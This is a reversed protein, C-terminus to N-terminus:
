FGPAFGFQWIWDKRPRNNPHVFDVEMLVLGFFNVRAALGFSTVLNFPDKNGGVEFATGETWWTVGADFFAALTVPPLGPATVGLVLPFPARLEFNAVLMRSGFLQNYVPCSSEGVFSNDAVADLCEVGEFSGSDYGRLLQQYGLYLPLIRQFDEGGDGYRGFHLIRGALTTYTFPMFYKRYDVLAGLYNLSGVVPALELRYRQGLVPGTYGFITNDYVLAASGWGLNMNDPECYPFDPDESCKPHDNKELVEGTSLFIESEYDYLVNQYRASFEIRQVRNLPYSWFTAIDRSIQRFRLETVVTNVGDTALGFFRNMVPTQAAVVAWNWRSRQNQYGALAAIDSVGGNVQLLTVVNHVGLMDSWFLATGGGAYTGFRDAGVALTPPAIYDLSLGAKYKASEFSETTQPLGLYANDVLAMVDGVPRDAPPLVAPSVEALPPELAGGALVAEDEIAYLTYRDGEYASFVMRNSDSSLSMAPSLATIGSVGTRLNTVQYLEGDPISIRYINTIGSQDSLFYLSSGDASWQPNINKGEPFDPLPEIEGTEVDILALRYSGWDLSRLDTGFRDTVFAIKAGDPSWAPQLDAFADYTLRRQEGTETDLVFLDMLGGLSAAYVIYRGDPSWSPNFIEGAEEIKYEKTKKGREADLVVIIPKGKSVGAFVFDRGNPHWDGASNIFQLSEYHPDTATKLIKKEIKGTGADARFMEISFRDKESLFVVQSGDPSVAPAINLRGGGQEPSVLVRAYEEPGKTKALLEQYANRLSEQWDAVLEDPAIELVQAMAQAVNGTVAAAKLIEAIAPDGWRGGVYAWLAHGYRYPFYSPSALERLSPLKERRAADLMWMATHPYVPGLSFYEAMGEIFWLPMALAAPFGGGVASRAGTTVDFQFAHVLEHGLVHDTEALSGAMPLVVRRKFAETVGGTAEDISGSLATTQEFDPHDAYLIIVQRGRLEHNFIRSLRAYWREAMRGAQEVADRAEPYYHIDFHETKLVEFDFREYQVKNQGFYQASATASWPGLGLAAFTLFGVATLRMSRLRM